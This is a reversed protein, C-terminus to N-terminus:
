VHKPRILSRLYVTETALLHSSILELLTSQLTLSRLAGCNFNNWGYTELSGRKYLNSDTKNDENHSLLPSTKHDGSLAWTGSPLLAL